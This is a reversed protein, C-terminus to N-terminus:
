ANTPVEMAQCGNPSRPKIRLPERVGAGGEDPPNIWTVSVNSTNSTYYISNSTSVTNNIFNFM